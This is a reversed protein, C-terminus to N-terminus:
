ESQEFQNLQEEFFLNKDEFRLTLTELEDFLSDIKEQNIHLSKSLKEIQDGDHRQSAEQIKITDRTLDKERRDIEDEIQKIRKELPRLIKSRQTIIESRRRRIDKKNVKLEVRKEAAHDSTLSRLDEEEDHWGGKDLFRQYSGEHISIHDNDFVILREALAHLFMENHTVIVVAGEFNDIAALLADSSELDLHNTPEDLLLLNIPTVLLKGLMVRSKEGGSLVRIQKLADDGQFMMAGCIDRAKQNDVDGASYQIEELVSLTDVLSSINTQEFVGMTLAQHYTIQGQQPRLTGSLLKLLTTKGKGNKGVVCIRDRAGITINLDKILPNDPSYSFSLNNASLSYKGQFPKARFHFDLTKLNEIKDHKEMKELTKVRSQVLNSLRAKARFRTIFLEIEKQRREDNIRTKEYIEEDLVIQAYYKETTGEIKRIKKRHIGVTHTVLKDMFSRDHTILILEHPWNILFREIWRISTIDLYNSPEDLLLMDPESVLIKALNLRVQYGGSFTAPNKQMDSTTFGLGSLIKEVKWYHDKEEERLGLMGEKLLTDRTFEIHQRVYGIRYNRPIHIMGKDPTEVSTILRFLTTKGHGNRGVLGIRERKNVKFSVNDFLVQRGYSKSLNEVSIM